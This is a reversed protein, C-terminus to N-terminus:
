PVAMQDGISSRPFTLGDFAVLNPTHNHHGLLQTVQHAKTDEKECTHNKAGDTNACIFEKTKKSIQNCNQHRREWIFPAGFIVYAALGRLTSNVNTKM